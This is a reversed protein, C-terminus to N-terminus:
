AGAGAASPSGVTDTAGPLDTADPLDPSVALARFGGAELEGFVRAPRGGTAAALVWPDEGDLLPVTRGAADQVASAGVRADELVVPVRECWPNRRWAAALLRRAGDLDTGLGPDVPLPAAPEVLVPEAAFLARRPSSGPYLAVPAGLVSGALGATPLAGGGAAFELLRVTEGCRRGHLWTRQEQVRGRDTRHAGLVVWEDEIAEGARVEASPLAWGVYARLDAALEGPLEARRRWAHVATWWRGVEDLLADPWDPRRLVESGADRVREALGGLQADVLRAATQEWWSTPRSRADATGARALDLLWAALDEVGDDMLALRAALRKAQAETDVPKAPAADRVAAARARQEAWARAAPDAAAADPGADGELLGRVWLSLLALAHKCPFKRSPCSCRYAPGTLDVSVQYPTRGSGQCQGWVLTDTAGTASWPGSGPPLTLRRAAAWSSADPAAREVRELTWEHDPAAM